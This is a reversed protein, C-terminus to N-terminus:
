YQNILIQQTQFRVVITCIAASILISTSGLSFDAPFPGCSPIFACLRFLVPFARLWGKDNTTRLPLSVSSTLQYVHKNHADHNLNDACFQPLSLLMPILSTFSLSLRVTKRQICPFPFLLFIQDPISGSGSAKLALGSAGAKSALPISGTGSAKLALTM